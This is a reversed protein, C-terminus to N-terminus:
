QPNSITKTNSEIPKVVELEENKEYILSFSAHLYPSLWGFVFISFLLIWIIAVLELENVLKYFSQLTNNRSIVIENRIEVPLDKKHIEESYKLTKLYKKNKSHKGIKDILYFSSLLTSTWIVGGLIKEFHEPYDIILSIATFLFIGQFIDIFMVLNWSSQNRNFGKRVELLLPITILFCLYSIYPISNKQYITKWFLGLAVFVGIVAITKQYEEIFEKLTVLKEEQKAIQVQSEESM